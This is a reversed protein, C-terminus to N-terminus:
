FRVHTENHDSFDWGKFDPVRLARAASPARNERIIHGVSQERVGTLLSIKKYTMLPNSAHMSLIAQVQTETYLRSWGRGRGKKSM